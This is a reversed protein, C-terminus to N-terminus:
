QAPWIVTRDDDAYVDGVLPNAVGDISPATEGGFLGIAAYADVEAQLSVPDPFGYPQGPATTAKIIEAETQWRFVEGEPSLFNPNGNSNILELAMDAAAQPDALADQLGLMAARM